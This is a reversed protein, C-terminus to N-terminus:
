GRGLSEWLLGRHRSSRPPRFRLSGSSVPDLRPVLAGLHVGQSRPGVQFGEGDGLSYEPAVAVCGPRRRFIGPCGLTPIGRSRRVEGELPGFPLGPFTAQPGVSDSVLAETPFGYLPHWGGQEGWALVDQVSEEGRVEFLGSLLEPFTLKVGGNDGVLVQTPFGRLSRLGKQGGGALACRVLGEKWGEPSVPPGSFTEKVSM